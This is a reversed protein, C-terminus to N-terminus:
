ALNKLQEIVDLGREILDLQESIRRPDTEDQMSNAIDTIKKLILEELPLMVGSSVVAKPASIKQSEHRSQPASTSASITPTMPVQASQGEERVNCVPCIVNGHYRFKPSGCTNCHEALMTGGLELMKSIKRVQEDDSNM